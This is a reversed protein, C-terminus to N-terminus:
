LVYAFTRRRVLIEEDTLLQEGRGSRWRAGDPPARPELKPARNLKAKFVFSALIEDSLPRREFPNDSSEDPEGEEIALYGCIYCANVLDVCESDSLEAWNQQRVKDVFRALLKEQLSFKDGEGEFIVEHELLGAGAAAIGLILMESVPEVSPEIGSYCDFFARYKLTFDAGRVWRSAVSGWKFYAVIAADLLERTLGRIQFLGPFKSTMATQPGSLCASIRPRPGGFSPQFDSLTPVYNDTYSLHSPSLSVSSLSFPREASPTVGKLQQLRKGLRPKPTKTLTCTLGHDSCSTCVVQDSGTAEIRNAFFCHAVPSLCM